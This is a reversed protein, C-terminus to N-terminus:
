YNRLESLVLKYDFFDLWIGHIKKINMKKQFPILIRHYIKQVYAKKVQIKIGQPLIGVSIDIGLVDFLGDLFIQYQNVNKFNCVSVLLDNIKYFKLDKLSDLFDYQNIKKTYIINIIDELKYNRIFKSFYFFEKERATRLMLTDTYLGIAFSLLIKDKLSILNKISLEYLNIVNASSKNIYSYVSNAIFEKDVRGHHDFVIYEKNEFNLFEVDEYNSTDYIFYVDYLNFNIEKEPILKLYELLGEGTRLEPFPIYYDGGFINMGWFVSAIGDCDSLIHTTHLVNKGKIYNKIDFINM